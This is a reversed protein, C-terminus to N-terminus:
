QSVLNLPGLKKSLIEVLQTQDQAMQGMAESMSSLVEHTKAYDKRISQIATGMERVASKALGKQREQRGEPRASAPRPPGRRPQSPPAPGEAESAGSSYTLPDPEDGSAKMIGAVVRNLEGSEAASELQSRLRLRHQEVEPPTPDMPLPAPASAPPAADQFVAPPPPTPIISGGAMAKAQPVRKLPADNIVLPPIELHEAFFGKITEFAQANMACVVEKRLRIDDTEEKPPAMCEKIIDGIQESYKDFAATAEPRLDNVKAELRGALCTSSSKNTLLDLLVAKPDKPAEAADPTAEQAKEATDPVAEQPEEAADPVAETPAEAAVGVAADPLPETPEGRADGLAAADRLAEKTDEVTAGTEDASAKGSAEVIEPQPDEVAKASDGSPDENAVLDGTAQAPDEAAEGRAVDRLSRQEEEAAEATPAPEAAQAPVQDGAEGLADPPACSEKVAAAMADASMGEFAGVLGPRPDEVEAGLATALRGSSEENTLLELLEAQPKFVKELAAILGGSAAERSLLDRLVHRPDPQAQETSAPEAVVPDEIAPSQTSEGVVEDASRPEVEAAAVGGGPDGSALPRALQSDLHARMYSYPDEPKNQVLTHLLAQVFPLLRHSELYDKASSAADRYEPTGRVGNPGALEEASLQASDLKAAEAAMSVNFDLGIPKEDATTGLEVSYSASSPRLAVRAVSVSQLVEVKLPEALQEASCPFRLTNKQFKELTVQRRVDGFRLSVYKDPGLNQAGAFTIEM